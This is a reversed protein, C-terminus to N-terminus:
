ENRLVAGLISFERAFDEVNVGFYCIMQGQLPAGSPNGEKDIFRIRSKPFCAASCNSLLQQGWATETGNNVLVCAQTVARCEIHKIIANCFEAILPQAYPPNMWVRGRWAQALGDDEKTYFANAKVNENALACSAPDLDIGGMARRAAEIIAPPTYWENEGSNNAVHARSALKEMTRGTVAQQEERHEALTQEFEDDPISAIQQARSSLDYSIGMDSLRPATSAKEPRGDSATAREGTEASDKLIQGLRREARIRIEAADVELQKNKAQRAYAQIAQAKDRWDKVEDVAKAEALARCAADYRILQM